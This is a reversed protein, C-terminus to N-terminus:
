LAELMKIIRARKAMQGRLESLKLKLINKEFHPKMQKEVVNEISQILTDAKESTTIIKKIQESNGFHEFADLFEEMYETFQQMADQLASKIERTTTDKELLKLNHIYGQTVTKLDQDKKGAFAIIIATYRDRVEKQFKRLLHRIKYLDNPNIEQNSKLVDVVEKDRDRAGKLRKVLEEFSGIARRAAQREEDSIQSSRQQASKISM